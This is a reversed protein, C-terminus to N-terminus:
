RGEGVGGMLAMLQERLWRSGQDQDASRHWYCFYDLGPMEFPLELIRAPYRQLLRLPATLALDGRMAILPAVMYHQVRMQINRRLGLRTLEADVHGSGKRRSSVHIHGMSLYDDMTLTDGKFPHDDRIMCAYRDQVLLAQHLHPDGILPADIAIDVSGNALATAVERRDMTYSRVHMGPAHTQLLEGLAPLLLAETLDSMSLRFVRESSAPDFVDGEHASSDLLQLAERVRGVINEAMPTPMMGAPTSVFLPDNLTKRLRALANSVAPQTLNLVEAARTLNRKNYIAEFVVFLNLDIKSLRM